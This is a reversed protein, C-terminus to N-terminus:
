YPLLDIKIDVKARLSDRLYGLDGSDQILFNFSGQVLTNPEPHPSADSGFVSGPRSEMTSPVGRSQHIDARRVPGFTLGFRFIDTMVPVGRRGPVDPAGAQVPSM